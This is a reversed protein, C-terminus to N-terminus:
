RSPAKLPDYSWVTVRYHDAAPLNPIEFYVRGFAPIVGPVWELRQAEVRGPAHQAQALLRVTAAPEGQTNEVYGRLRVRGSGDPVTDWNIKFWRESGPMLTTVTESPRTDTTACGFLAAVLVGAIAHQMLINTCM